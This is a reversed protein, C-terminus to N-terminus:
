ENILSSNSIANNGIFAIKTYKKMAKTIKIRSRISKYSNDNLKIVDCAISNRCNHFRENFVHKDKNILFLIVQTERKFM